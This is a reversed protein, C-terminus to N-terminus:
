ITKWCEMQSSVQRLAHHLRSKVTGEPCGVIEAIEAVSLGEQYRLVFCQHHNETLQGISARLHQEFLQNDIKEPLDDEWVEEKEITLAEPRQRRYENKCLNAALTYIWTQFKYDHNFLQPKEIIKLFLEQTFDEAKAADRWLMRLFFRYMRPGYRDYLVAFAREDRKAIAQMLAEDSTHELPQRIINM